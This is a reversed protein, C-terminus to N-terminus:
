GIKQKIKSYQFVEGEKTCCSPTSCVLNLELGLSSSFQTAEKILSNHGLTGLREEFRRVLNMTPDTNKYLKVASKIKIAKYEEEVSRLGRGWHERTLYWLATSRLTHKGGNEVIIKRAEQDIRQLETVSLHQTWM